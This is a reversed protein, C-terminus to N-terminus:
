KLFLIGFRKGNLHTSRKPSTSTCEKCHTKLNWCIGAQHGPSMVSPHIALHVIRAGTEGMFIMPEKQLPYALPPLSGLHPKSSSPKAWIGLARWVGWYCLKGRRIVATRFSIDTCLQATSQSGGKLSHWDHLYVSIQAPGNMWGSSVQVGSSPAADGLKPMQCLDVM